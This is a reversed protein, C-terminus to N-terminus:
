DNHLSLIKLIKTHALDWKSTVQFACIHDLYERLLRHAPSSVLFYQAFNKHRNGGLVKCLQFSSNRNLFCKAAFCTKPSFILVVAVTYPLIICINVMKMKTFYYKTSQKHGKQVM